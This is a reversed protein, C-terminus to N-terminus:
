NKPRPTVRLFQRPRRLRAIHEEAERTDAAEWTGAPMHRVVASWRDETYAWTGPFQGAVALMGVAEDEDADHATLFDRGQDRTGTIAKMHTAEETLQSILSNLTYV